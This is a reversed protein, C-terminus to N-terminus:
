ANEEALNSESCSEHSESAEEDIDESQISSLEDFNVGLETSIKQAFLQMASLRENLSAVEARLEEIPGEAKQVAGEETGELADEVLLWLAVGEGIGNRKAFKKVRKLCDETARITTQKLKPHSARYAEVREQLSM